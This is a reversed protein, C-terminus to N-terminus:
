KKTATAFRRGRVGNLFREGDQVLKYSDLVALWDSVWVRLEAKVVPDTEADARKRLDAIRALCTSIKDPRELLM